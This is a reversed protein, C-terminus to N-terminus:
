AGNRYERPTVGYKKKFADKFYNSDSFGCRLAIQTITDKTSVLEAAAHQLRTFVLYEHVGVGVAERFKRSLYNPSFGAAAAVDATTVPRMYNKSIFQAALLVQRDATHIDALTDQSFVCARACLLLLEQLQFYLTLASQADNIRMEATMRSFLTSMQERYADSAQFIQTQSFFAAGQPLASLVADSVDERRFYLDVRKCAGFLYRTFHFTGPPILIYDGSHLDYLNDDIMFRCAGDEIHYLEFYPHCHYSRMSYGAKRVTREIHIRSIGGTKTRVEKHKKMFNENTNIFGYKRRKEIKFGYRM